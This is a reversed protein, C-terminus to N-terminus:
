RRLTVPRTEPLYAAHQQGETNQPIGQQMRRRLSHEDGDQDDGQGTEPLTQAVTPGALRWAPGPQETIRLPLPPQRGFHPTYGQWRLPHLAQRVGPHFFVQNDQQHAM